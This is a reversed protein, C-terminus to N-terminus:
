PVEPPNNDLYEQKDADAEAQTIDGVAVQAALQADVWEVEPPPTEAAMLVRLDHTEPTLFRTWAADDNDALQSSVGVGEVRYIIPYTIAGDSYGEQAIEVTYGLDRADDVYTM